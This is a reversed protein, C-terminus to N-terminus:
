AGLLNRIEEPQAPRIESAGLADALKTEQLKHDGRLLALVFPTRAKDDPVHLKVLRKRFFSGETLTAAYVLTKIQRDAPAGGPFKILEEITRVGPTPFEEISQVPGDTIPPVR